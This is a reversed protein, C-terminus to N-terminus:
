SSLLDRSPLGSIPRSAVVGAGRSAPDGRGPRTTSGNRKMSAAWSSSSRVSPKVSSNIADSADSGPSPGNSSGDDAAEKKLEVSSGGAEAELSGLVEEMRNADPNYAKDIAKRIARETSVVPRLDCNTLTRVDDLKLIDFPNGVAVTLVDGIKSLPLVGYYTALEQNIAELADDDFEIKSIDIPPLNTEQAIAAVYGMEDVVNNDLVTEGFTKEDKEAAAIAEDAKEDDILGHKTLVKRIRQYFKDKLAM